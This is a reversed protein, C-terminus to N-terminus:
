RDVRPDGVLGETAESRPPHATTGITLSVGAISADCWCPLFPM